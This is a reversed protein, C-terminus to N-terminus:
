LTNIPLLDYNSLEYMLMINTTIYPATKHLLPELSQLFIQIESPPKPPPSPAASAQKKLLEMLLQQIMGDAAETPVKKKKRGPPYLPRDIPLSEETHKQKQKQKQLTKGGPPNPTLPRMAPSPTSRGSCDSYSDMESSPPPTPLPPYLDQYSAGSLSGASQSWSDAMSSPPCTTPPMEGHALSLSGSFLSSTKMMSTLPLTHLPPCPVCPVLLPLLERRQAGSPTPSSSYFSADAASAAGVVDESESLEAIDSDDRDTAAAAEIGQGM